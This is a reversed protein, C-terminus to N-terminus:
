TDFADSQGLRRGGGVAAVAGGRRSIVRTGPAVGRIRELQREHLDGDISLLKPAPQERADDIFDNVGVVIQEESETRLQQLTPARASKGRSTAPKSRRYLGASTM